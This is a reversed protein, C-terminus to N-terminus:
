AKLLFGKTLISDIISAATIKDNAKMAKALEKELEVL